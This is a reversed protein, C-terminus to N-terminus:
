MSFGSRPNGDSPGLERQCWSALFRLASEPQLKGRRMAALTTQYSSVGPHKGERCAKRWKIVADASYNINSHQFGYKGLTKVILQAWENQRKGHDKCAYELLAASRAQNSHITMAPKARARDGDSIALLPHMMGNNALIFAEEIASILSSAESCSPGLFDDLAFLLEIALARLENPTRRLRPLSVYADELYHLRERFEKYSLKWDDEDDDTDSTM